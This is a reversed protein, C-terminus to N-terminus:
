KHRPCCSDPGLFSDNKWGFLLRPTQHKPTVRETRKSMFVQGEHKSNEGVNNGGDENFRSPMSSSGVMEKNKKKERPLGSTKVKRGM